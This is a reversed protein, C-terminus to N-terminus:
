SGFNERIEKAKKLFEIDKLDKSRSSSEKMLIIDDISAIYLEFNDVKKVVKRNYAVSFNLPHHLIIDVVKHSQKENFFSFAILNKENIWKKVKEPDAMGIPDEPLSPKYGDNKLVNILNFINEKDISILLDFDFTARPVGHLNVAVGGVILYQIKNEYLSKLLDFYFM